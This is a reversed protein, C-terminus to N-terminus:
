SGFAVVCSDLGTFALLKVSGNTIHATFSSDVAVVNDDLTFVLSTNLVFQGTVERTGMYDSSVTNQKLTFGGFTLTQRPTVVNSKIDIAVIDKNTSDFYFLTDSTMQVLHSDLSVNFDRGNLTLVNGVIIATNGEVVSQDPPSTTSQLETFNVDGKLLYNTNQSVKLEPWCNKVWFVTDKECGTGQQCIGNLCM